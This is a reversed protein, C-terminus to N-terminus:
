QMGDVEHLVAALLETGGIAGHIRLAAHGRQHVVALSERLREGDDFIEIFHKGVMAQNRAIRHIARAHAHQRLDDGAVDLRQLVGAGRQIELVLQVDVLGAIVVHSRSHIM